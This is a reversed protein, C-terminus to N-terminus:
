NKNNKNLVSLATGPYYHSLIEKYTSGKQAMGQAGYQSMGVGHGNGSVSFVFKGDKYELEFATSKLGFIKRIDTGKINNGFLCIVSVNNGSTLETDGIPNEDKNVPKKLHNELISIFDDYSFENTTIYDRKLTDGASKVSQLYPVDSSWVESAKETVGNSCAHFVTMAYSDDYTLCQGATSYVAAKIKSYYKDFKDGWNNRAEDELVFAQCHTFDTCIDAGNEHKADSSIKRLAYTRAAVAQAKLAEPEFGAPMEACVVGVIYDELGIKASQGTNHNHMDLSMTDPAPRNNNCSSFFYPVFAIIFILFALYFIFVKM